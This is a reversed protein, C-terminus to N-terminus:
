RRQTRNYAYDALLASFVGMVVGVLLGVFLVPSLPPRIAKWSEEAKKTLVWDEGSSANIHAKKLCEDFKKTNSFSLFKDRCKQSAIKELSDAQNESLFRYNKGMASQYMEGLRNAIEAASSPSRSLVHIEITQREPYEFIHVSGQLQAFVKDQASRNKEGLLREIFVLVEPRLRELVSSDAPIQFNFNPDDELSMEAEVKKLFGSLDNARFKEAFQPYAYRVHFLTSAGYQNAQLAVLSYTAMVIMLAVALVLNRRRWLTEIPNFRAM